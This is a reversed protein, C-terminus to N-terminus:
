HVLSKPYSTALLSRWRKIAMSTTSWMVRETYQDTDTVPATYNLCPVKALDNIYVAM